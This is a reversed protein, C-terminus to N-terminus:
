FANDQSVALFRTKLSQQFAHRSLSSFFRQRQKKPNACPKLGAFLV